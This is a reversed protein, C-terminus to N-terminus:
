AEGRREHRPLHHYTTIRRYGYVTKPIEVKKVSMIESNLNRQKQKLAAYNEKKYKYRSYIKASKYILFLSFLIIVISAIKKM